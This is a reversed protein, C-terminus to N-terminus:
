WRKVKEPLPDVARSSPRPILLPTPCPRKASDAIVMHVPKLQMGHVCFVARLHIPSEQESAVRKRATELCQVPHNRHALDQAM